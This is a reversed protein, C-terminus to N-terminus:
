VVTLNGISAIATWYNINNCILTISDFQNTSAISGTSNTTVKNGFNVFISSSSMVIKWGGTGLQGGVVIITDGPSGTELSITVLSSSDAIYGNYARATQTTGTTVDNWTFNAWGSTSFTISPTSTSLEVNINGSSSVPCMVPAGSSSTVLLANNQTTLASMVNASSAYLLTNAANTLPYTSTSWQPTTSAGSLLLQQATSTGALIAGASATSYFIGGNSATLDANTGGLALSLESAWTPVGAATTLVATTATALGSIVNAASSYLLQNITTTAPYTASSWAPTTSSGSLLIQNATATGSLIAAASATSYFIGGNSATLSAGTGGNILSFLNSATIAADNGSSYPSRGLYFLDTSLLTAVPNAIFIQHINESM